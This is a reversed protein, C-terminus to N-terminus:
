CGTQICLREITISSYVAHIYFSGKITTSRLLGQNVDLSSLCLKVASNLDSGEAVPTKSWLYESSGTVTPHIICCCKNEVLISTKQSSVFDYKGSIRIHMLDWPKQLSFTLMLTKICKAICEIAVYALSKGLSSLKDHPTSTAILACLLPRFPIKLVCWCVIEM